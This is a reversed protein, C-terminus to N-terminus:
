AYVSSGQVYLPAQCPGHPQLLCVHDAVLGVGGQIDSDAQQVGLVLM